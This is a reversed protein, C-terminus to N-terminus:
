CHPHQITMRQRSSPQGVWYGTAKTVVQKCQRCEM